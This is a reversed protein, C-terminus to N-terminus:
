IDKWTKKVVGYGYRQELYRQKYLEIDKESDGTPELGAAEMAQRLGESTKEPKNDM